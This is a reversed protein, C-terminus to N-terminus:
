VRLVEYIKKTIYSGDPNDIREEKIIQANYGCMIILIVFICM